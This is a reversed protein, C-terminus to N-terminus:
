FFQYLRVWYVYISIMSTIMKWYQAMLQCVKSKMSIKCKKWLVFGCLGIRTVDVLLLIGIMKIKPVMDDITTGQTPKFNEVNPGLYVMLLLSLYSLPLLIEMTEKMMLIRLRLKLENHNQMNQRQHLTLINKVMRTNLIYDFLFLLITTMTTFYSGIEITIWLAHGTTVRTAIAFKTRLENGERNAKRAILNLFKALVFRSFPWVLAMIPQYTIPINKTATDLARYMIFSIGWAVQYVAFWRFRKRFELNSRNILPQQLWFFALTIIWTPHFPVFAIFDDSIDMLNNYKLLIFTTSILYWVAFTVLLRLFPNKYTSIGKEEIFLVWDYHLMYFYLSAFIFITIVNSPLSILIEKTASKPGFVTYSNISLVVALILLAYYMHRTEIKAKFDVLLSRRGLHQITNLFRYSFPKSKETHNQDDENQESPQVITIDKEPAVKVTFLVNKTTSM